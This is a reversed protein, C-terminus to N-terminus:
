IRLRRLESHLGLAMHLQDLATRLRKVSMEMKTRGMGTIRPRFMDTLERMPSTTSKETPKKIQRVVASRMAVRGKVRAVLSGVHCDAGVFKHLKM